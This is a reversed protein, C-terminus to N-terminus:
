KSLSSVVQNGVSGVGGLVVFNQISSNSLTTAMSDPLQNKPTLLLATNDKSVLVSGTLADAFTDGTTIFLKTPNPYYQNLINEAVAYRDKGGIRIPTPVEEFVKQSVSAEGGVIITNKVSKENIVDSTESPLDNPQTLLIPFGNEAAYPAISLADPFNLGNAIVATQFSGMEDAINKSVEFRDKGDIRSVSIGMDQIEKVVSDSVSGTGGIIIANQAGLRVMEQKTFSNLSDAETLLIPADDKHALPAASLADAFANYNSIIVTNSTKWGEKSVNAAVEFRDSGGLREPTLASQIFGYGYLPDHGPAGLDIANKKLQDILEQNSATPYEEKLLALDGTVFPTAMSTGSYSAYQNDLVTSLIDVGPAAFDIENGTSSFSARQNQSDTAAVAIAKDYKAPFDVTDGTGSSNGDNGAAAVVLIGADYARNITAQLLASDEPSGLSLNVIDMKNTIAWDIGAIIDSTLGEGNQNLVKVAYLQADPAVGVIGIGNNKAAIIGAVHTGHGNDDTYSSTYSVFSKGGAINLDEHPYIGSDIVAVKVNKGTYQSNWAKPAQIQTVGWNQTQKEIEVKQDNEVSQISSNHSLLDVNEIPISARIAPINRYQELITGGLQTILGKDVENKFLILKDAKLSEGHVRMNSQFFLLSILSVTVGLRKIIKRMHNM